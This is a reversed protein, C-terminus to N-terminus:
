GVIGEAKGRARLERARARIEEYSLRPLEEGCKAARAVRQRGEILIAILADQDDGASEQRQAEYLCNVRSLASHLSKLM